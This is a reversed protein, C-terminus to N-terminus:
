RIFRDSSWIFIDNIKEVMKYHIEPFIADILFVLVLSYVRLPIYMITSNNYLSHILPLMTSYIAAYRLKGKYYFENFLYTSTLLLSKAIAFSMNEFSYHKIDPYYKTIPTYFSLIILFIGNMFTIPNKSSLGLLIGIEIINIFLISSLFCSPSTDKFFLDYNAYLILPILVTIVKIKSFLKLPGFNSYSTLLLFLPVFISFFRSIIKFKTIIYSLGYLIIFYVGHLWWM